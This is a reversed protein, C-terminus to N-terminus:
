IYINKAQNTQYRKIIYTNSKYLAQQSGGRGAYTAVGILRAKSLPRYRYIQRSTYREDIDRLLRYIYKRAALLHLIPAIACYVALIQLTLLRPILLTSYALLLSTQIELSIYPYFNNFYLIGIISILILIRQKLLIQKLLITFLILVLQVAFQAWTCTVPKVQTTVVM